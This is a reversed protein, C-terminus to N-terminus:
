NVCSKKYKQWCSAAYAIAAPLSLVFFPNRGDSADKILAIVLEFAKNCDDLTKTQENLVDEIIKKVKKKEEEEM